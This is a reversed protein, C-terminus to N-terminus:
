FLNSCCKFLVRSMAVLPINIVCKKGSHWSNFLLFCCSKFSFIDFTIFFLLCCVVLRNCSVDININYKNKILATCHLLVHKKINHTFHPNMFLRGDPFNFNSEHILFWSDNTQVRDMSGVSLFLILQLLIMNHDMNTERKMTRLYMLLYQDFM